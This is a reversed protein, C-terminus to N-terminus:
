TVLSRSTQMQMHGQAPIRIRRPVPENAAANYSVRTAAASPKPRDQLEHTIGCREALECSVTSIATPQRMLVHQDMPCLGGLLAM